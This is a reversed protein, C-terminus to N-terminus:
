SVVVIIKNIIIYNHSSVGYSLLSCIFFRWIGVAALAYWSTHYALTLGDLSFFGWCCTGFLLLASHRLKSFFCWGRLFYYSCILLLLRLYNDSILTDDLTLLSSSRDRIDRALYGDFQIADTSSSVITSLHYAAIFTILPIMKFADSNVWYNIM